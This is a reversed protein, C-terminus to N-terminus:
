KNQENERSEEEVIETEEEITLECKEAYLRKREQAILQCGCAPCDFTDYLQVECDSVLVSLGSKGNDRSIYHRELNAEFEKGCIKCKLM